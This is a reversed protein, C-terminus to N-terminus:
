MKASFITQVKETRDIGPALLAGIAERLAKLRNDSTALDRGGESREIRDLDAALSLCRGRMELYQGDLTETASRM